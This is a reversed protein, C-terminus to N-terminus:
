LLMEAGDDERGLADSSESMREEMIKLASRQKGRADHYAKVSNNLSEIAGKFKMHNDDMHALTHSLGVPTYNMERIQRARRRSAKLSEAIAGM